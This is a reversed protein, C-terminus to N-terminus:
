NSNIASNKLWEWRVAWDRLVDERWCHTTTYGQWDAHFCEPNQVDTYWNGGLKIDTQSQRDGPWQRSVVINGEMGNLEGIESRISYHLTAKSKPAYRVAAYSGCATAIWDQKDIHLTFPIEPANKGRYKRPLPLRLEWVSYVPITDSLTTVGNTTRYPSFAMKEFEGGWNRRAPNEPDGDMMYLLSPTDGMKVNGEYYSIFDAGLHGAGRIHAKYYGNEWEGDKKTDGIFGRYSANNEIFWLDPFNSAIYTYANCGWKKNPGGIWYVRIKSAIDPADHLAQAVDELAGWVLVWLPRADNRRACDVIWGSGETPNDYGQWAAAGRHGQKCLMRLSDPKLLDPVHEQLVAYDQAYLDIMRLIEEKSGSGYSPSSVLGEIDFRENIMLLHAMSQNDDPDTGGIDTSILVRPKQPVPQQAVSPQLLFLSFFLSFIQKM